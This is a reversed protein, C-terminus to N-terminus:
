KRVESILKIYNKYREDYIKNKNLKSIIICGEENIHNCTKYKCSVNFEKSYKKIDSANINLELSSFGPTDAILGGFLKYLTVIRTTHKGRGLAESIENTELNLDKNLKNLLSSKGAGTQGTLAIVCNKFEKKIKNIQTNRYINFGLSKYYKKYKNITIKEKFSLLDEKTFIIIPKINNSLAILLLKDLLFSSFDPKKVSTIIFLKDINSILPRILSNKRPLIENIRLNEKDFLVYDGVTPKINKYLLKGSEKCDFVETDSYVTYLDKNIKTIIGKNMKNM